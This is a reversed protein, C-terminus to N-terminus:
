GGAPDRSQAGDGASHGHPTSKGSSSRGTIETLQGEPFTFDLTQVTWFVKKGKSEWLFQRSIGQAQLLM